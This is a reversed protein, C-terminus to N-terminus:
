AQFDMIDKSLCILSIGDGKDPRSIMQYLKDILFAKFLTKGEKKVVDFEDHINGKVETYVRYLIDGIDSYVESRKNLFDILKEQGSLSLDAQSITLSADKWPSIIHTLFVVIREGRGRFTSKL